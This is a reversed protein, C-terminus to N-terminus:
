SRPGSADRVEQPWPEFLIGDSTDEEDEDEDGEWAPLGPEDLEGTLWAVLTDLLGGNLRAQNHNRPWLVLPWEDAPGDVLWCLFDGGPSMAFPLVGGAEPWAPFPYKEPSKGKLERYGGAMRPGGDMLGVPGDDLPAWFGLWDGWTGAGYTTM